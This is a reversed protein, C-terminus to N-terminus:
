LVGGFGEGGDARRTASADMLATLEKYDKKYSEADPALKTRTLKAANYLAKQFAASMQRLTGDNFAKVGQDLVRMCKVLEQYGKQYVKQLKLQEQMQGRIGEAEKASMGNKIGEKLTKQLEKYKTNCDDATKRLSEIAANAKGANAQFDIRVIDYRQAM